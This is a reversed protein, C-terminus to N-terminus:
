ALSRWSRPTASPRPTRCRGARLLFIRFEPIRLNRGTVTAPSRMRSTATRFASTIAMTTTTTTTSPPPLTPLPTPPTRTTFTVEPTSPTPHTCPMFNKIPILCPTPMSHRSNLIFPWRTRQVKFLIRSFFFFSFRAQQMEVFLAKIGLIRSLSAM